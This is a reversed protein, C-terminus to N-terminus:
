KSPSPFFHKEANFIIRETSDSGRPSMPYPSFRPFQFRFGEKKMRAPSPKRHSSPLFYKDFIPNVLDKTGHFHHKKARMTPLFPAFTDRKLFPTSFTKLFRNKRSQLASFPFFDRKVGECFLPLQPLYYVKLTKVDVKVVQGELM